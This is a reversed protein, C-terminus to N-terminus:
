LGYQFFYISLATISPGDTLINKAILKKIESVSYFKVSEIEELEDLQTSSQTLETALVVYGKQDSIGNTTYFEGILKLNRVILGSEEKLERAGADLIKEKAEIIGAPIELFSKNFIHRYNEIIAIENKSNVAVVKVFTSLSVYFFDHEINKLDRLNKKFVKIWKNQYILEISVTKLKSKM